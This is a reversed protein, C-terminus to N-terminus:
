YVFKCSMKLEGNSTLRRYNEEALGGQSMYKEREGERGLFIELPLTQKYQSQVMKIFSEAEIMKYTLIQALIRRFDRAGIRNKNYLKTLTQLAAPFYNKAQIVIPSELIRLVASGNGTLKISTGDTKTKEYQREQPLEPLTDLEKLAKKMEADYNIAIAKPTSKVQSPRAALFQVRYQTALDQIRQRMDSSDLNRVVEVIQYLVNLKTSYDFDSQPNTKLLGYQDTYIPGYKDNWESDYAMNSGFPIVTIRDINGSELAKVQDDLFTSRDDALANSLRVNSGASSDFTILNVRSLIQRASFGDRKMQSIVSQFIYRAQSPFSRDTRGSAAYSTYDIIIFPKPDPDQAKSDLGLQTLFQTILQPNSNQLSPTSFEIHKVRDRQGLSLYFVDAADAILDMDRGLFGFTAGPFARELSVILEPFYRNVAQVRSKSDRGGFPALFERDSLILEMKPRRAQNILAVQKVNQAWASVSLIFIIFTKIFNKM